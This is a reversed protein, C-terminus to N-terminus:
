KGYKKVKLIKNIDLGRYLRDYITKHNIGLERSWNMVSQTRGEYTINKNTSKNNMQEFSSSWKCNEKFYGKDNDIRDISHNNTPREGMDEFFNEFSEKWRDCIEIGREGYRYYRNSNRNLCRTKLNSWSSYTGTKVMRHKVNGQICGCSKVEGCKVKLKRIIKENGCDCKFLWHERGNNGRHSFSIYTLMNFKRGILEQNTYKM